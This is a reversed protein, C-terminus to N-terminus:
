WPGRIYHTGMNNTDSPWISPAQTVTGTVPDVYRRGFQHHIPASRTRGVGWSYNTQFNATPPVIVALPHGWQVNYYNGHWSQNANYWNAGRDYNGYRFPRYGAGGAQVECMTLSSASLAVLLFLLRRM